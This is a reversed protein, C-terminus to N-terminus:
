AGKSTSMSVIRNKASYDTVGNAFIDVTIRAIRKEKSHTVLKNSSKTVGLMTVGNSQYSSDAFTGSGTFDLSYVAPLTVGGNEQHICSITINKAEAISVGSYDVNVSETYNDSKLLNYFVFISNLKTRSIKTSKITTAFDPPTFSGNSYSYKYSVVVDLINSDAVDTAVNIDLVRTLGSKITAKSDTAGDKLAAFYFNSIATDLQDTEKVVVSKDSYIDSLEPKEYDNYKSTTTGGGVTATTYNYDVNVKAQYTNGDVNVIKTLKSITEGGVIGPKSAVQEVTWDPDTKLMKEIHEFTNCADLEEIVNQAAMNASQKDIGKATFVNSQSFYALVPVCLVALLVVAIVVEILSFGDKQRM